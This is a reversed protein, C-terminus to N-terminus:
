LCLSATTPDICVGHSCFASRAKGPRGVHHAEIAQVSPKEAKLIILLYIVRQQLPQSNIVFRRAPQAVMLKPAKAGAEVDRAVYCLVVVVTADFTRGYM